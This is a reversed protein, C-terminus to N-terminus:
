LKKFILLLVYAKLVVLLGAFFALWNLNTGFVKVVLAMLAMAAGIKIAEGIFFTGATANKQSHLRLVLHLVFMSTPILYTMGGAIASMAGWQGSVILSVLTVVLLAVAQAVVLNLLGKIAAASMHQRQEPTLSIAEFQELDM